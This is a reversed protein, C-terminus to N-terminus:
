LRFMLGLSVGFDLSNLWYNPFPANLEDPNAGNDTAMKLLSPPVTLYKPKYVNFQTYAGLTLETTPLIPVNYGLDLKTSFAFANMKMMMDPPVIIEGVETGVVDPATSYVLYAPSMDLIAKTGLGLGVSFRNEFMLVEFEAGFNLTPLFNVIMFIDFASAPDGAVAQASIKQTTSGQGVGLYGKVAFGSLVSDGSLSPIWDQSDFIYGVSAQGGMLMASIFGSMKNALPNLKHLDEIPISPLTVSGYFDANLGLVWGKEFASAMFVVNLMLVVLAIKKFKSKNM